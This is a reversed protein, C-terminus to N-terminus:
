FGRTSGLMVRLENPRLGDEWTETGAGVLVELQHDPSSTTRFGVAASLRTLKPDLESLRAGWVNGAGLQLAGHLWIWIPWEYQATVVLASRDVLRGPRYGRMPEFGGLTIQETFPIAGRLPDVFAAYGVLGLTRRHGVDLFAGATAGYRLWRRTTDGAHEGSLVLRAGTRPGDPDRSDLVLDLGQHAITYGDEFGPPLEVQGSAVRQALSPDGCCRRDDDFRLRRVGISTRVASARFIRLDFLLSAATRDSRYRGLDRERSRPGLGGFLGDSRRTWEARLSVTGRDEGRYRVTLRDVVTFSLWDEGWTAAHMRFANKRVVFDDWFFYVGVSPLLGFEYFATPVWGIKHAEDFTFFDVLRTPWRHKEAHTTLAGLPVRLVYEHVMWLPFLVTRPAWAVAEGVTTRREGRGDYDPRPRRYTAAADGSASIGAVLLATALWLRVPM